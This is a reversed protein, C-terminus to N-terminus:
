YNYDRLFWGNDGSSIEATGNCLWSPKNIVKPLKFLRNSLFYTVILM